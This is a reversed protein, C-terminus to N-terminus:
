QRRAILITWRSERGFPIKLPGKSLPRSSVLEWEDQSVRDRLRSWTGPDNPPPRRSWFTLKGSATIEALLVKYVEELRLYFAERSVDFLEPGHFIIEPRGIREFQGAFRTLWRSPLLVETAFRDCWHEVEQNTADRVPPGRQSAKEAFRHLIWHGLEHALTFSSRRSELAAENVLVCAFKGKQDVLYGSQELPAYVVSISESEM